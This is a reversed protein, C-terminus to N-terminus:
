GMNWSAFGGSGAGEASYKKSGQVALYSAMVIDSYTGYPYQLLETIWNCTNCGCGSEKEWDYEGEELPIM